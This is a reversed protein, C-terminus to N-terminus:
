SDNQVVPANEPVNVFFNSVRSRNGSLKGRHEVPQATGTHLGVNEERFGQGRQDKHCQEKMSGTLIWWVKLAHNVM